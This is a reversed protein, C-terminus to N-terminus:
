FYKYIPTRIFKYGISTIPAQHRSMIDPYEEDFRGAIPSTGTKLANRRISYDTVGPLLCYLYAQAM